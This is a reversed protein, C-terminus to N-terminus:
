RRVELRLRPIIRRRGTTDVSYQAQPGTQTPSRSKSARGHRDLKRGASWSAPETSSRDSWAPVHKSHCVCLVAAYLPSIAVERDARDKAQRVLDVVGVDIM